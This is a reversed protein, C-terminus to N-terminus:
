SLPAAMTFWLFSDNNIIIISPTQNQREIEQNNNTRQHRGSPILPIQMEGEFYTQSGLFTHLSLNQV